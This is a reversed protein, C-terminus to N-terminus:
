RRYGKVGAGNGAAGRVSARDWLRELTEAWPEFNREGELARARSTILLEYGAAADGELALTVAEEVAMLLSDLAPTPLTM